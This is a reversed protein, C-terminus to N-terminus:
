HGAADMLVDHLDPSRAPGYNYGRGNLVVFDDSPAPRAEAALRAEEIYRALDAEIDAPSAGSCSPGAPIESVLADPEAAALRVGPSALLLMGAVALWGAVSGALTRPPNSARM